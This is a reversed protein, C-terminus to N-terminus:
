QVCVPSAVLAIAQVLAFTVVAWLFPRGEFSDPLLVVVVSVLSYQPAFPFLLCAIHFRLPVVAVDVLEVRNCAMWRYEAMMKYTLFPCKLRHTM